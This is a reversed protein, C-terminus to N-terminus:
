VMKGKNNKYNISVELASVSCNLEFCLRCAQCKFKGTVKDGKEDLAELASERSRCGPCEPFYQSNLSQAIASIEQNKM